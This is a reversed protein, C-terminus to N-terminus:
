LQHLLLRGEHSRTVTSVQRGAHREWGGLDVLHPCQVDVAERGGGHGRHRTLKMLMQTLLQVENGRKRPCPSPPSECQAPRCTVVPLQSVSTWTKNERSHACVHDLENLEDAGTIIWAKILHTHHTHFCSFCVAMCLEGSRQRWLCLM